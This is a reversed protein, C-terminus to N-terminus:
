DACRASRFGEGDLPLLCRLPNFAEAYKVKAIFGYYAALAHVSECMDLGAPNPKAVQSAHCSLLNAKEDVLGGIDVFVGGRFNISTYDHYYLVNHVYRCAAATAAALARHDQHSDEPANVFILDPEVRTIVSEVACVLERNCILNTDQFGGWHLKANLRHAVKEQEAKRVPEDELCSGCTMVLLNLDHGASAAKLLTGGCGYEIDDPHSGIALIKM